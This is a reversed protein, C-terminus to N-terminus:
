VPFISALTLLGKGMQNQPMPTTKAGNKPNKATADIYHFGFTVQIFSSSIFPLVIFIVFLGVRRSKKLDDATAPAANILGNKTGEETKPAFAGLLRIAM